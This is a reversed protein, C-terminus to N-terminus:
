LWETDKKVKWKDYKIKENENWTPCVLYEDGCLHVVVLM